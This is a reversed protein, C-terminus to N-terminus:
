PRWHTLSPADDPAGASALRRHEIEEDAVWIM